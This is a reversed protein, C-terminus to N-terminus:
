ARFVLLLLWRFILLLRIRLRCHVGLMTSTPAPTPASASSSSCPVDSALNNGPFVRSVEHMVAVRGGVARESIAFPYILLPHNILIGLNLPLPQPPHAEVLGGQTSVLIFSHYIDHLLIPSVVGVKPAHHHLWFNPSQRSCRRLRSCTPGIPVIHRGGPIFDLIVKIPPIDTGAFSAMLKIGKVQVAHVGINVAQSNM